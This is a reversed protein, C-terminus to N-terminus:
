GKVCRVVLVCLVCVLLCRCQLLFIVDVSHQGLLQWYWVSFIMAEACLSWTYDIWFGWFIRLIFFLNIKWGIMKQCLYYKRSGRNSTPCIYIPWASTVHRNFQQGDSYHWGVVGDSWILAVAQWRISGGATLWGALYKMQKNIKNIWNVFYVLDEQLWVSTYLM